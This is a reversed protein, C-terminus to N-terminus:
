SARFGWKPRMGHSWRGGELLASGPCWAADQLLSFVALVDGMKWGEFVFLDHNAFALKFRIETDPEFIFILHHGIGRLGSGERKGHFVTCNPIGGVKFDAIASAFDSVDLDLGIMNDLVGAIEPFYALESLNTLSCAVSEVEDRFPFNANLWLQSIELIEIVSHM